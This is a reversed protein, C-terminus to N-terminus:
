WGSFVKAVGHAIGSGIDEVGKVAGKAVDVAAHVEGKAVDGVATLVHGHVLDSGAQAYSRGLDKAGDVFGRGVDVAGQVQAKGIIEAGAVANKGAAVIKARNKYIATGLLIAGGAIALPPCAVSAVMLGGGVMEAGGEVMQETNHKEYGDHLDFVGQAVAVVGGAPGAVKGIAELAPVAGEAVGFTEAAAAGGEAIGGVAAVSGATGKVTAQVTEENVDGHAIASWGHYAEDVLSPLALAGVIGAAGGAFKGLTTMKPAGEEEMGPLTLQEGEGSAEAAVSEDATASAAATPEGEGVPSAAAPEEPEMGPLYLQEGEPAVLPKALAPEEAAVAPAAGGFLGRVKGFQGSVFERVAKEAGEEETAFFHQIKHALKITSEPDHFLLHAQNSMDHVTQGLLNADPVVGLGPVLNGAGKSLKSDGAKDMATPLGGGTPETGPFPSDGDFLANFQSSDVQGDYHALEATRRATASPASTAIAKRDAPTPLGKEPQTTQSANPATKPTLPQVTLRGSGRPGDITSM